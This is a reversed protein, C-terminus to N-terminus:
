RYGIFVVTMQCHPHSFFSFYARSTQIERREESYIGGLGPCMQRAVAPCSSTSISDPLDTQQWGVLGRGGQGPSQGRGSAGRSERLGQPTRDEILEVEQFDLETELYNQARGNAELCYCETQVGPYGQDERRPSWRHDLAPSCLASKSTRPAGIRCHKAPLASPLCQGGQLPAPSDREGLIVGQRKSSQITNQVWLFMRSCPVALACLM